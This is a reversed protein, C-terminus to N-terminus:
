SMVEACILEIARGDSVDAGETSRVHGIAARIVKIADPSSTRIVVGDHHGHSKTADEDQSKAAKKKWGQDAAVLVSFEVDDFGTWPRMEAPLSGVARALREHHWRSLEGTRNDAVAFARAQARSTFVDSVDVIAVHTWGLRKMAALRGNGAFVENQYVVLPRMQGHVDLSTCIAAMNKEDHLRENEEYEKVSDISVLFTSLPEPGKWVTETM